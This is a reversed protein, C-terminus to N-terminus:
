ANEKLKVLREGQFSIQAEAHETWPCRRHSIVLCVRQRCWDLLARQVDAETEMDLSSTAEDFIVVDPDRLVARALQVLQAQGSSVGTGNPGIIPEDLPFPKGDKRIDSFLEALRVDTREAHAEGNLFLNDRVSGEVLVPKSGVYLIQGTSFAAVGLAEDGNVFVRGKTPPLIGALTLALTSKGAGTEATLAALRGRELDVDVDEFVYPGPGYRFSLGRGSIRHIVDANQAGALHPAEQADWYAALRKGVTATEAAKAAYDSLQVVAAFLQGVVFLVAILSGPSLTGQVILLGGLFIVALFALSNLMMISSRITATLRAQALSIQMFGLHAQMFLRIFLDGVGFQRSLLVREVEVVDRSRQSLDALRRFKEDTLEMHKRTGYIMGGAFLLGMAGMLLLLPPSLWLMVAVSAILWFLIVVTQSISEIFFRYAFYVDTMIIERLEAMPVATLDLYAAEHINRSLRGVGRERCALALKEQAWQRGRVFFFAAVSLAVALAILWGNLRPDAGTAGDLVAKGVLAILVQTSVEGLTLVGLRFASWRPRPVEGAVLRWTSLIDKLGKESRLLNQIAIQDRQPM